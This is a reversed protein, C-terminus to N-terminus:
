EIVFGIAHLAVSYQTEKELCFILDSPETYGNEDSAYVAVEDHDTRMHEPIYFERSPAFSVIVYNINRFYTPELKYLRADSPWEINKIYTAKGKNNMMRNNGMQADICADANRNTM